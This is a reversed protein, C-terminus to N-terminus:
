SKKKISGYCYGIGFRTYRIKEKKKAVTSETVVDVETKRKKDKAVTKLKKLENTKAQAEEERKMDLEFGPVKAGRKIYSRALRNLEEDEDVDVDILSKFMDKDFWRDVKRMKKLSKDTRDLDDILPHSVMEDDDDEEEDSTNNKDKEEISINLGKGLDIPEEDESEIESDEADSNIKKYYNGSSDLIEDQKNYHVVKRRRKEEFFELEEEDDLEKEETAPMEPNVTLTDIDNMTKVGKLNFLSDEMTDTPGADGPIIM